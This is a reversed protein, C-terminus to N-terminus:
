STVSAASNIFSMLRFPEWDFIVNIEIKISFFSSVQRNSEESKRDLNQINSSHVNRILITSFNLMYM